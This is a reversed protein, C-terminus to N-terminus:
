TSDKDEVADFEEQISRGFGVSDFYVVLVFLQLACPVVYILDFLDMSRNFLELMSLTNTLNEWYILLEIQPRFADIQEQVSDLGDVMSVFGPRLVEPLLLADDKAFLFGTHKFAKEEKIREQALKAKAELNKNSKSPDKFKQALLYMLLSISKGAFKAASLGGLSVVPTPDEVVLGSEFAKSSPLKKDPTKLKASALLQAAAKFAPLTSSSDTVKSTSSSDAAKPTSTSDAAKFAPLTSTSEESASKFSSATTSEKDTEKPEM